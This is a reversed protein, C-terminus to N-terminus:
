ENDGGHTDSEGADTQGRLWGTRLAALTARAHEPTRGEVQSTPPDAVPTPGARLEPALNAQRVRRPLGETGGTRAQPASPGNSTRPPIVELPRPRRTNDASAPSTHETPPELEADDQSTADATTIEDPTTEPTIVRWPSDRFVVNSAESSEGAPVTTLSSTAVRLAPASATSSEAVHTSDSAPKQRKDLLGEPILVVATVGGYPSRQLTVKVDQRHALRNVVFLGLQDAELLDVQEADHIRRNADEMAQRSMGLGRDEIEIALGAGVLEGRVLAKTHPPSFSVANEVLEAILHTLDAVASGSLRVEPFEHVDARTFDEVEAVAARVVDVIPVPNRWRRAPHAGSLIILSEAQRRMRTTLHDLRFLDELDEPDETRREMADLLALQRHLLVQSRRALYVYVGSVGSLVESREIAAHIAARHVANLSQAVQSVEDDGHFTRPAESDLEVKEGAHLRRLAAPLKHAALDMASNRLGILEVLLGRGIHVSIVLSLLVGVLGLAVALGSAGLVDFEFLSSEEAARTTVTVEAESFASLVPTVTDSWETASVETVVEGGPGIAVITRELHRLSAYSESELIEQYLMADDSGLRQGAHQFAQRAQINGAVDAYQSPSLTGAAFAAAMISDARALMERGHTLEHIVRPDSADAPVPVAALTAQVDFAHEIASTYGAFAEEWSADGTAVAERLVALGFAEAMMTSIHEPLRPDLDAADTSSQEIGSALAETADATREGATSLPELEGPDSALYRGAATREAQVADVFESIPTLLTAHVEKFNQQASINQATTVTAFAWLAMLSMVPVMLVAVVKARVSKPRLVKPV